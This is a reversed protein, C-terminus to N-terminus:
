TSRTPSHSLNFKVWIEITWLRALRAVAFGMTTEDLVRPYFLRLTYTDERHPEGKRVGGYLEAPSDMLKGSKSKQKAGQQKRSTVLVHLDLRM